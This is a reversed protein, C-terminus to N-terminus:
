VFQANETAIEAAARQIHALALLGVLLFLVVFDNPLLFINVIRLKQDPPFHLTLIISTVPRLLIDATQAILGFLALRQLWRATDRSFIEGALYASFLRWACYCAAAVLLWISINVGFGAAQQWPQVRSLDVRLLRGFGDNISEVSIWLSLILYLTWLAYGIAAFREIQCLWGIKSRLGSNLSTQATATQSQTPRSNTM